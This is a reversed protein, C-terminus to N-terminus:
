KRSFLTIMTEPATQVDKSSFYEFDSVLFTFFHKKKEKQIYGSLTFHFTLCGGVQCCFFYAMDYAAYSFGSDEYDVFM